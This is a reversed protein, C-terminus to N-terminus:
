KGKLKSSLTVFLYIIELPFLAHLALVLVSQRNMATGYRAINNESKVM